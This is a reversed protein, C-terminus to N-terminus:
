NPEDLKEEPCAELAAPHNFFKTDANNVTLTVKEEHAALIKRHEEYNQKGIVSADIGKVDDPNVIWLEFLDMQEDNLNKACEILAEPIRTSYLGNRQMRCFQEVADVATRSKFGVFKPNARRVAEM